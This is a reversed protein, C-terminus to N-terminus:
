EAGGGDDVCSVVVVVALAALFVWVAVWEHLDIWYHRLVGIFVLRMPCLALGFLRSCDTSQPLIEGGLPCFLEM